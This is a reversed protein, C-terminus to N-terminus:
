PQAVAFVEFIFGEIVLPSSHDAMKRRGTGIRGLPAATSLVLKLFSVQPFNHYGVHIGVISTRKRPLKKPLVLLVWFYIRILRGLYTPLSSLM